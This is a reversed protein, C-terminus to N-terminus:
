RGAADGIGCIEEAAYRKTLRVIRRNAVDSVYIARRSVGVAEPWALPIDPTRVASDGGTGRSDVNGYRGFERILNGNNDTIRVSCTTACPYFIRGWGDVQFMPQRCMCGDGFAGSMCGLGPYVRLANELKRSVQSMWGWRVDAVIGKREEAPSGEKIATISGGEPGFKVVSGTMGYYHVYSGPRGDRFADPPIFDGPFLKLGIYINGQRDLQIGGPTAEIPGVIASPFRGVKKMEPHDKMRGHDEPRGDPGFVAVCYWAWTGMQMSYLRGKTDAALGVTCYGAGMRGYVFGLANPLPKEKKADPSDRGQYGGTPPDAVPIPKFDRDYRCIYGSYGGGVQVYWNGDWGVGFDAAADFPVEIKRGSIGNVASIGASGDNFVLTETDPHVAMRPMVAPPFRQADLLDLKRVLSEGRDEIRLIGCDKRQSASGAFAQGVWIAPPDSVEDLAMAVSPSEQAYLYTAKLPIETEAVRVADPKWSSFKVLKRRVTNKGSVTACLVYVCGKKRHCAVLEAGEAAFGGIEGGDPGFVRVKGGAWDCVLLNGDGDCDAGAIPDGHPSTASGGIGAFKEMKGDGGADMRYVRGAPFADTPKGSRDKPSNLGSMYVFKGDPSPVCIFTRPVTYHSPQLGKWYGTWFTGGAAGGDTDLKATELHNYLLLKGDPTLRPSLQGVAGPYFEPWTGFHNRPYYGAEGADIFGLPKVKEKPLDAPPPMITRLYKGDRDFGQLCRSSGRHTWVTSSYVYLEGGPGVALGRLEGVWHPHEVPFGDLEVRMGARVRIRFPGGGAPRGSDDRGDWVIEQRFGPKLPEPPPKEGGLVGAALHRVVNGAADLVAVEVDTPAQVAFAIKAGDGHREAEPKAAFAPAAAEGAISGAPFLPAVAFFVPWFAGGKRM